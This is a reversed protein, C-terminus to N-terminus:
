SPRAVMLWFVLALAAFAPWGLLFWRRALAQFEAGPLTGDRECRQAIARMRLQISVVPIWCAAALVYLAASAAIWPSSLPHGAAQALALGTVPQLLGATRTFIWDALVTARASAAIAAVGGTRLTYWFHFATGLGTGFLVTAGLIHLWKLALYYEGV